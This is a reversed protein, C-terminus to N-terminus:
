IYFSPCGREQYGRQLQNCITPRVLQGVGPIGGRPEYREGEGGKLVEEIGPDVSNQVLEPQLLYSLLIIHMDYSQMITLVVAHNNIEGRFPRSYWIEEYIM